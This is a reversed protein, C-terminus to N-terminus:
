FFNKKQPEKLLDWWTMSTYRLAVTATTSKGALTHSTASMGLLQKRFCYILASWRSNMASLECMYMIKCYPEFNNSNGPVWLSGGIGGNGDAEWGGRTSRNGRCTAVAHIALECLELKRWKIFISHSSTLPIRKKKFHNQSTQRNQDINHPTLTGAQVVDTVNGANEITQHHKTFTKKKAWIIKSHSQSSKWWVSQM